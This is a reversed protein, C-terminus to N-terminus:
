NLNSFVGITLKTSLHGSVKSKKLQFRAHINKVSTRTRILPARVLNIWLSSLSRPRKSKYSEAQVSHLYRDKEPTCAYFDFFCQEFLIDEQMLLEFFAEKLEQDLEFTGSSKLRVKRSLIGGYIKLISLSIKLLKILNKTKM